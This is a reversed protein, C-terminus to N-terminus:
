PSPYLKFSIPKGTSDVKVLVMDGSNVVMGMYSQINVHHTVMIIPMNPNQKREVAILKVLEDTQRKAQSMDDFFSGLAAEKKVTGKNLLSATDICRCWPSSYVKAQEIGQISLWDGTNKAQKRGLDGLNRQTSCQSIQYNQPDGYGPADAHRMLLVHNGDKLKSALDSQATAFKSQTFLLSCIIILFSLRLKM